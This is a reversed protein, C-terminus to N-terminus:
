ARALRFGGPLGRLFEEAAMPKKGARQVEVLRLAGEGCAITAGDLLTGPAGNGPVPAAKLVKVRERKEGVEMEFFAGPFPSLGRVHDHVARASKSFDIRAEAKDIKAAYTVGEEAQQTCTLAGRELAGLARVMLDGGLRSLRDHVQGATEDPGIPTREALCVPGTDLGEEMRMVMIGTEADGAMVARQIPAAGRWRPLLSAHLNLCGLEPADLVPKPLILGYAVVVAVDAKLAAFEAQAAEAKLSKPTRVGIGFREAQLHVPSKKEAMGRGAPRPPQTYVAAVEHGQGAIELLTPVSFEPTGMFVVRM